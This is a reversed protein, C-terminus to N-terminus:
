QVKTLRKDFRTIIKYFQQLMDTGLVSLAEMLIWWVDHHNVQHNAGSRKPRVGAVDNWIDLHWEGGLSELVKSISVALMM